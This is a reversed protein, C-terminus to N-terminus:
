SAFMVAFALFCLLEAQLDDGIHAVSGILEAFAILVVVADQCSRCFTQSAAEGLAVACLEADQGAYRVAVVVRVGIVNGDIVVARSKVFCLHFSGIVFEGTASVDEVYLNVAVCGVVGLCDHADDVHHVLIVNAVSADVVGAVAAHVASVFVCVLCQVLARLASAGVDVTQLADCAVEDASGVTPVLSLECLEVVAYNVILLHNVYESYQVVGSYVARAEARADVTCSAFVFAWAAVVRLRPCKACTLVSRRVVQKLLDHGVGKGVDGKTTAVREELCFAECFQGFADFLLGLLSDPAVCAKAVFVEQVIIRCLAQQLIDIDKNVAGENLFKAVFLQEESAAAVLADDIHRARPLFPM